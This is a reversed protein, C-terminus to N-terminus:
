NISKLKKAQLIQIKAYTFGIREVDHLRITRFTKEQRPLITENILIDYEKVLNNKEDFLKIKMEIDSIEMDSRNFIKISSFNSISYDVVILNSGPSFAEKPRDSKIEERNVFKTLSKWFFEGRLPSIILKTKVSRPTKQEDKRITKVYGIMNADVIYVELNKIDYDIYGISINSFTKEKYSGIEGDIKVTKSILTNGSPTQFNLIVEIDNYKFRSNNSIDIDLVGITHQVDSIWSYGKIGLDANPVPSDDFDIDILSKDIYKEDGGSLLYEKSSLLDGSGVRLYIDMFEKSPLGPINFNKFTKTEGPGISGKIGFQRSTVLKKRSDQFDIIYKINGYYNRSENIIKLKEVIITKSALNDVIFKFDLIKISGRAEFPLTEKDHLIDGSKIAIRTEKPEWPLLPIVVNRFKKTEKSGISDKLVIVYNIRTGDKNKLQVEIKINDFGLISSNKIEIFDFKGLMSKGKTLWEFDTITLKSLDVKKINKKIELEKPRINREDSVTDLSVIMSLLFFFISIKKNIKYM